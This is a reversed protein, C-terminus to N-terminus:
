EEVNQTINSTTSHSSIGTMMELQKEQEGYNRNGVSTLSITIDASQNRREQDIKRCTLLSRYAEKFDKLTAYYLFPNIVSNLYFMLHSIDLLVLLFVPYPQQIFNTVVALIVAPTYLIIFASLALWSARTVKSNINSTNVGTVLLNSRQRLKITIIIYNFLMAISFCTFMLILIVFYAVEQLIYTVLCVKVDIFKDQSFFVFGIVIEISCFILVSSYAIHLRKKTVLLKYHLPKLM